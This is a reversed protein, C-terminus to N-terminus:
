SVTPKEREEAAARVRLVAEVERLIRGSLALSLHGIGAVAIESAGPLTANRQPTVLNDHYTYLCTFAAYPDSGRAAERERLGQLWASDEAMNRVNPTFVFRTMWTGRHPTGLTVVHAVKAHGCRAIYARAVLGGMSHAVIVVRSAGTAAIIEEIAAEVQPVYSDITAFWPTYDMAFARYGERALRRRFWFWNRRNCALGHVLLLPLSQASASSRDSRPVLRRRSPTFPMVLSFMLIWGGLERLYMIASKWAPIRLSAPIPDGARRALIFEAAVLVARVGLYIAVGLALASTTSWGWAAHAHHGIAVYVVLEFALLALLHWALM